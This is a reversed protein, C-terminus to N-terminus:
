PNTGPRRRPLSSSKTSYSYHPTALVRYIGQTGKQGWSLLAPCWVIWKVGYLPVEWTHLAHGGRPVILSNLSSILSNPENLHKPLLGMTLGHSTGEWTIFQLIFSLQLLKLVKCHQMHRIMTINNCPKMNLNLRSHLASYCHSNSEVERNSPDVKYWRNSTCYLTWTHLRTYKRASQVGRSLPGFRFTRDKGFSHYLACVTFGHLDATAGSILIQISWNVQLAVVDFIWSLLLIPSM